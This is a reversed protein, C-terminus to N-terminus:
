KLMAPATIVPQERNNVAGNEAIGTMKEYDFPQHGSLLRQDLKVTIIM